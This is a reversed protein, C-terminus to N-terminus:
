YKGLRKTKRQYMANWRSYRRRRSAHHYGNSLFGPFIIHPMRREEDLACPRLAYLPYVTASLSFFLITGVSGVDKCQKTEVRAEVRNQM